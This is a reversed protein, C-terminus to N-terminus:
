NLRPRLPGRTLRHWGEALWQWVLPAAVGAVEVVLPGVVAVVVVLPGVVAVVLVLPVLVLLRDLAVLPCPCLCLPYTLLSTLNIKLYTSAKAL